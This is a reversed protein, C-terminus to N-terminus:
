VWRQWLTQQGLEVFGEGAYLAIAASNHPEVALLVRKAGIAVSRRVLERVVLRALGRKRHKPTTGLPEIWVDGSEADFWGIAFAAVEGQADVVAVDLERSYTARGRLSTVHAARLPNLAFVTAHAACWAEADIAGGDVLAYGDSGLAPPPEDLVCGLVISWPQVAIFGLDTLLAAAQEDHTNAVTEICADPDGASRRRRSEILRRWLLRTTAEDSPESLVWAREDLLIGIAASTQTRLFLRERVGCPWTAVCWDYDGCTLLPPSHLLAYRSVEAYIRPDHDLM